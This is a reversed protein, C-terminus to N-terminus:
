VTNSIFNISIFVNGTNGLLSHIGNIFHCKIQLCIHFCKTLKPTCGFSPFCLKGVQLSLFFKNIDRDRRIQILKVNLSLAREM